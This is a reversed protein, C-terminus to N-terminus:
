LRDDPRRSSRQSQAHVMPGRVLARCGRHQRLLFDLYTRLAENPHTPNATQAPTTSGDPLTGYALQYANTIVYIGQPTRINLPNALEDPTTQSTGAMVQYMGPEGNQPGAWYDCIPTSAACAGWFGGVKAANTDDQALAQFSLAVLSFIRILAWLMRQPSIPM